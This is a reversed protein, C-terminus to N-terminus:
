STPGAAEGRVKSNSAGSDNVEGGPQSGLVADVDLVVLLENELQIIGRLYRADVGGVNPPPAEIDGARTSVVEAVRDVLLGTKEGHWSLVVCRSESTTSSTDLGLVARLDLVTVVDGRLNVVGQVFDPAHPVPTTQVHRNIEQVQRIDVGLLQEGVYLTAFQLEGIADIARKETQTDTM